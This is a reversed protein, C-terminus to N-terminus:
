SAACSATAHQAIFIEWERREVDSHFPAFFGPCSCGREVCLHAGCLQHDLAPHRCFLCNLDPTSDRLQPFNMRPGWNLFRSSLNYDPSLSLQIGVRGARKEAAAFRGFSFNPSTASDSPRPHRSAPLDPHGREYHRSQLTIVRPCGEMLRPLRRDSLLTTLEELHRYKPVSLDSISIGLPRSNSQSRQV